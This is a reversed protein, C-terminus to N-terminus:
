KRDRNVFTWVHKRQKDRYLPYVIRYAQKLYQRVDYRDDLNLKGLVTGHVDEQYTLTRSFSADSLWIQNSPTHVLYGKVNLVGGPTTRRYTGVYLIYRAGVTSFVLVDGTRYRAKKRFLPM